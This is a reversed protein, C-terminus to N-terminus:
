GRRAELEEVDIIMYPIEDTQNEELISLVTEDLICSAIRHRGNYVGSIGSNIDVLIFPGNADYHLEQADLKELIEEEQRVITGRHGFYVLCTILLGVIIILSIIYKKILKIKILPKLERKKKQEM